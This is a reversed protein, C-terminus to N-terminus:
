IQGFLAKRQPTYRWWQHLAFADKGQQDRPHHIGISRLDAALAPGIDPLQEPAQCDAARAAKSFKM